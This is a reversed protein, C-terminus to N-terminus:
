LGATDAPEGPAPATTAPPASAGQLSRIYAVVAWRDDHAVREAYSPMLGRGVRIIAYIYGPSRTLATGSVLSPGNPFKGPGVVPGNGAGEAGHCVLCNNQYVQEGRQLVEPTVTIPNTLTAGVSDLQLQTWRAATEANPSSLAVANEPPLMPIQQSEFSPSTRMTAIFPAKALLYDLDYGAFDTCGTGVLGLMAIGAALRFSAGTGRVTKGRIM